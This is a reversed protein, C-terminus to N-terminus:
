PGIGEERLVDEVDRWFDELLTVADTFEYPEVKGRRHRHDFRATRRTKVGSKLALAHANDYGVIREGGPGLLTLSYSLGHPRGPTPPVDRVVFRASFGGEFALIDGDLLLLNEHSQGQGM